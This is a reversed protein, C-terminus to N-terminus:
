LKRTHKFHLDPVLMQVFCLFLFTVLCETIKQLKTIKCVHLSIVSKRPSPLLNTSVSHDRQQVLHTLLNTATFYYGGDFVLINLLDAKLSLQM